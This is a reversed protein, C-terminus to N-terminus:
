KKGQNEVYQKVDELTVQGVSALFYSPSWFAKGWLQKRVEPFEKRIIRSTVAKLNNVFKSLTVSPKSAFLIHIHDKDTEQEVISINIKQAIELVLEKLRDSIPVVLVNRRYKVCFVLHFQICYVSHCGKDIKYKM